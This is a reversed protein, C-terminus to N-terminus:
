LRYIAELQSGPTSVANVHQNMVSSNKFHKILGEKGQIRAYNVKCVKESNFREWKSGNSKMFFERVSKSNLFNLFAYGM